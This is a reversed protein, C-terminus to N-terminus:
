PSRPVGTNSMRPIPTVRGPYTSDRCVGVARGLPLHQQEPAVFTDPELLFSHLSSIGPQTRGPGQIGELLKRMEPPSIVDPLPGGKNTPAPHAHLM